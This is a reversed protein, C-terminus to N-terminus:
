TVSSENITRGLLLFENESNKFYCRNITMDIVIFYLKVKVSEIIIPKEPTMIRIIQSHIEGICLTAM